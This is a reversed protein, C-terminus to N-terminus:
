KRSTIKSKEDKAGKYFSYPPYSVVRRIRHM